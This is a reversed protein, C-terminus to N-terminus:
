AGTADTPETEITLTIREPVVLLAHKSIYLTRVAPTDSESDFVHTGKTSRTFKLNEILKSM